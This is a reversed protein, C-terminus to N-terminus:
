RSLREWQEPTYTKISLAHLADSDFRDGLTGYVMRHQRISPKGRFAESVVVAEFHRGDGSVTVQSGPLGQEILARIEDPHM